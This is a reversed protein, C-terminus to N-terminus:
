NTEAIDSASIAKTFCVLSRFKADLFVLMLMREGLESAQLFRAYFYINIIKSEGNQIQDKIKEPVRSERTRGESLGGRALSGVLTSLGCTLM